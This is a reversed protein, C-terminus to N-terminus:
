FAGLAMLHMLVDRVSRVALGASHTLFCRAGYPANLRLCLTEEAVPKHLTTLFCRAGYPANLGLVRQGERTDRRITLFCRAGYPANLSPTDVYKAIPGM